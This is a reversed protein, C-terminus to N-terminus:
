FEFDQKFCKNKLNEMNKSYAKISLFWDLGYIGSHLLVIDSPGQIKKKKSFINM